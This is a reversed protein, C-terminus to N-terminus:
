GSPQRSGIGANQIRQEHHREVANAEVLQRRKQENRLARKFERGLATAPISLVTVVNLRSLADLRTLLAREIADILVQESKM